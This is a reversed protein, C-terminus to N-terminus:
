PSSPSSTGSRAAREAALWQERERDYRKLYEQYHTPSVGKFVRYALRHEAILLIQRVRERSIGKIEAITRLTLGALRLDLVHAYLPWNRQNHPHIM